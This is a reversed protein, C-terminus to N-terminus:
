KENKVKKLLDIIEDIDNIGNDLDGIKIANCNGKHKEIKTQYLEDIELRVIKCDIEGKFVGVSFGIGILFTISTIVGVAKVWFKEFFKGGKKSDKKKDKPM